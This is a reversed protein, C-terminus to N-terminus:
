LETYRLIQIECLVCIRFIVYIMNLMKKQTNEGENKNRGKEDLEGGVEKRKNRV